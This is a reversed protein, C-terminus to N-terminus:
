KLIRMLLPLEMGVLVGILLVTVYLLAHFYRLYAFSLFLMPASIGGILAIAFEIEVFRRALHTEVFQTLWAGVGMSALYIGIIVSFQPVSDGLVYSALTGTLLEYILGCSAVILVNLFLVFPRAM